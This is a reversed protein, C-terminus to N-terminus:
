GRGRRKFVMMFLLLFACMTALNNSLNQVIGQQHTLAILRFGIALFALTFCLKM